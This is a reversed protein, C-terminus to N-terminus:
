TTLASLLVGSTSKCEKLIEVGDLLRERVEKLGTINRFASHQGSGQSYQADVNDAHIFANKVAIASAFWESEDKKKGEAIVLVSDDSSDPCDQIISALGMEDALSIAKVRYGVGLVRGSLFATLRIM